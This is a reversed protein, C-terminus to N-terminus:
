QKGPDRCCLRAPVAGLVHAGRGPGVQAPSKGMTCQGTSGQLPRQQPATCRHTRATTLRLHCDTPPRTAFCTHDALAAPRGHPSDRISHWALPAGSRLAWTAPNVQYNPNTPSGAVPYNIAPPPPAIPPPPVPGKHQPLVHTPEKGAWGQVFTAAIASTLVHVSRPHAIDPLGPTTQPGLCLQM